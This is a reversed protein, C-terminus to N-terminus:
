SGSRLLAEREQLWLPVNAAPMPRAIGYGQALDCGLKLLARCHEDSEVGEAVVTRRFSRALGIVGEVISFDSPDDLMDRVFSQDIKIKTAPLRRLYTLSSYGTGFDDIAFSVGLATCQGMVEAVRDIHHLASTELIELILNVPNVRQHSALLVALREVFDPRQLHSGDINISVVMEIGAAIWAEMQTLAADIVWEGLEVAIPSNEVCGLFAAPQLLEGEPHAWRILAEVGVARGSALKIVPQFHLVFQDSQIARRIDEQLRLHEMLDADHSADFFQYCNKGKGKALYMAQDAHRILQEADASDRPFMTVGISASLNLVEGALRIPEAVAKLLRNLIPECDGVGELDPLVAVFEDGGFRSLTDVERLAKGMAGALALLVQDGV